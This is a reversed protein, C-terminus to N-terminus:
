PAKQEFGQPPNPIRWARTHLGASDRDRKTARGSGGHKSCSFWRREEYFLNEIMIWKEGTKMRIM